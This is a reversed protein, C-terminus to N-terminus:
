LFICFFSILFCLLLIHIKEIKEIIELFVAVTLVAKRAVTMLMTVQGLGGAVAM